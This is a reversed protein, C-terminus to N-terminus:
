RQRRYPRTNPPYDSLLAAITERATAARAAEARYLLSGSQREYIELAILAPDDRMKGLQYAFTTVESAAIVQVRRRGAAIDYNLTLVIQQARAEDRQAPTFGRQKLTDDLAMLLAPHNPAEVARDFPHAEVISYRVYAEFPATWNFEERYVSSACSALAACLCLALCPKIWIRM